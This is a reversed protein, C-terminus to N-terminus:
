RIIIKCSIYSETAVNNDMVRIWTEYQNPLTNEDTIVKIKINCTTKSSITFYNDEMRIWTRYENPLISFGSSIDSPDEINLFVIREEDYPNYIDVSFESEEGLSSSNITIQKPSIWMTSRDQKDRSEFLKAILNETMPYDLKITSSDTLGKLDAGYKENPGVYKTCSTLTLLCVLVALFHKM